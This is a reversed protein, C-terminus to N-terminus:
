ARSWNGLIRAVMVAEAGRRAAMEYGSEDPEDGEDELGEREDVGVGMDDEEEEVEEDDGDDRDHM